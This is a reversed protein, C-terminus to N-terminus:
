PEFEPGSWDVARESWEELLPRKKDTYEERSLEGEGAVLARKAEDFTATREADDRLYARLALRQRWHHGQYLLLELNFAQPDRKRFFRREEIGAEGFYEYGLQQLTPVHQTAAELSDVGVVIDVIPRAAVGEVATSGVHAIDRVSDALAELLRVGEAEYRGTWDPDHERLEVAESSETERIAM